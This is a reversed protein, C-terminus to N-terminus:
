EAVFRVRQRVPPDLPTHDNHVLEVVLTHEGKAVDEFTYSTSPKMATAGDLTWHVHGEGAVRPGGGPVLKHNAVEIEATVSGAKVGSGPRPAVIRMTPAGGSAGPGPDASGENEGSYGHEGASSPGDVAPPSACGVVTLGALLVVVLAMAPMVRGAVDGAFRKMRPQAM